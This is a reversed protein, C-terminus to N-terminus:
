RNKEVSNEVINASIKKVLKEVSKKGIKGDMKTGFKKSINSLCLKIHVSNICFECLKSSDLKKEILNSPM